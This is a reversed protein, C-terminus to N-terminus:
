IPDSLGVNFGVNFWEMMLAKDFVTYTKKPIEPLMYVTLEKKKLLKRGGNINDENIETRQIDMLRVVLQIINKPNSTYNLQKKTKHIFCDVVVNDYNKSIYRLPVAETTGGDCYINGDKTVLSSVMPISASAWMFDVFDDYSYDKLRKYETRTIRSSLNTVTIIVEKDSNRLTEYDHITFYKKITNRLAKTEGLTKRCTLLRWIVVFPNIKGKTNIPNVNFIDKGTVSTYAEKLLDYKGMAVLPAMLSGTSCGIVIDYDKRVSCMRGATYAGWSGGGSIIAVRKKDNTAM